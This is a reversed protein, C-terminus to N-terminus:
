ILSSLLKKLKTIEGRGIKIAKLGVKKAGEVEEKDHGVFIAERPKVNFHKLVTLYARREPKEFGILCSLFVKDYHENKILGLKKFLRLRWALPHVTDSLIAIKISKSKIKRMLEKIGPYVKTYKLNISLDRSLWEKVYKKPIGLKKYILANAEKLKVKGRVIKPYLQFWLKEQEKFSVNFKKLFEKYSKLFIKETRKSDYIVGEGDFIVLKIKEQKM